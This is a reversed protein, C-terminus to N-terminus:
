GRVWVKGGAPFFRRTSGAVANYSMGFQSCLPRVKVWCRAGHEGEYFEAGPLLQAFLISRRSISRGPIVPPLRQVATATRKRRACM